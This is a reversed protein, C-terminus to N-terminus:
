KKAGAAGAPATTSASGAPAAVGQANTNTTPPVSTAVPKVAAQRVALGAVGQANTNTTPPASTAAPKATAHKKAPTASGTAAAGVVPNVNVVLATTNTPLPAPFTSMSAQHSVAAAAQNQRNKEAIESVFRSTEIISRATGRIVETAVPAWFDSFPMGCSKALRQAFGLSNKHIRGEPSFALVHFKMSKNNVADQYKGVKDYLREVPKNTVTVDICFHDNIVVDGYRTHQKGDKGLCVIPVERRALKNHARAQRTIVDCVANHRRTVNGEGSAQPCQIAHTTLKDADAFLKKCGMCPLDGGADKTTARTNHPVGIGLKKMAVWQEEKLPNEVAAMAIASVHGKASEALAAIEEVTTPLSMKWMPQMARAAAHCTGAMTSWKTIGQGGFKTSQRLHKSSDLQNTGIQLLTSM